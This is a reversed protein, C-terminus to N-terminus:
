ASRVMVLATDLSECRSGSAASCAAGGVTASYSSRQRRHMASTSLRRLLYVRSSARSRSCSCARAVAAHVPHSM